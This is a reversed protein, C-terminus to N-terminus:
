FVTISKMFLKTIRTKWRIFPLVLRKLKVCDRFAEDGITVTNGDEECPVEIEELNVCGRFTGAPIKTVNPPIIVKKIVPNDEFIGYTDRYNRDDSEDGISQVLHPVVFVEEAKRGGCEKYKDKRSNLQEM